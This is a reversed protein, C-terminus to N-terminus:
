EGAGGQVNNILTWMDPALEKGNDDKDKVCLGSSAWEDDFVNTPKSQIGSGIIEVTLYYGDVPASGVPKCSDILYGTSGDAAVPKTYYWFGDDGKVWDHDTGYDITYNTTEAPAQGYVHGDKDQWTIVVAARIWAETDGTNQIKVNQKITPESTIDEEVETTVKSPKFLNHLPGVSNILFAITGGVTVTLLLLLSVLLAASKGSRRHSRKHHKRQYM